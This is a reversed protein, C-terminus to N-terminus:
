DQQDLVVHRHDHFDGIMHDHQFVAGLNRVTSWFCDLIIRANNGSIEADIVFLNGLKDFLRVLRAGTIRRVEHRCLESLFGDLFFNGFLRAFCRGSANREGTTQRLCTTALGIIQSEDLADARDVFLLKVFVPDIMEILNGGPAVRVNHVSFGIQFEVPTDRAFVPDPLGFLKGSTLRCLEGLANFLTINRRAM